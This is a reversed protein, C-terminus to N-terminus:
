PPNPLAIPVVPPNITPSLSATSQMRLRAGPKIKVVDSGGANSSAVSVLMLLTTAADLLRFFNNRFTRWKFAASALCWISKISASLWIKGM